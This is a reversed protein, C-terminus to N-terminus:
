LKTEKLMAEFMEDFTNYDNPYFVDGDESDGPSNYSMVIGCETDWKLIVLEMTTEHPLDFYLIRDKNFCGYYEKFKEEILKKIIEISDNKSLLETWTTVSKETEYKEASGM